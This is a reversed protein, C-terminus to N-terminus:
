FDQDITCTKLIRQVVTAESAISKYMSIFNYFKAEWFNYIKLLHKPSSLASTASKEHSICKPKNPLGLIIFYCLNITFYHNFQLASYIILFYFISNCHFNIILNM